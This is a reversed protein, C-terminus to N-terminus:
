APAGRATMARLYRPPLPHGRANRRGSHQVPVSVIDIHVEFLRV